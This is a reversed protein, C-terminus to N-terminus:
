PLLSLVNSPIPVINGWISMLSSLTEDAKEATETVQNVTDLAKNINNLSSNILDKDPKSSDMEEEVTEVRKILKKSDELGSNNLEQKFEQLLKLFEEKTMGQTTQIHSDRGSITSGTVNGTITINSHISYDNVTKKEQKSNDLQEKSKPIISSIDDILELINVMEGSKQCQAQTTKQKLKMLVKYQHFYPTISQQCETCKCPTLKDCKTELRPYSNNIKDLEHSVITLLEKKNQGSVRIHIQRDKYYEIIEAQTNDKELVVGNKWVSQYDHAIHQHMIVIFQSTIGKPMFDYQYRLLLNNDAQWTYVPPNQELLQPAIYHHPQNPIEYCLKFKQMLALLEGRMTNYQSDQWIHKLDNKNFRGFNKIVEANDLVKYVADTAWTPKLIITKYLPSEEDEQFHLCVGLDHLYGSLQLKDAEKEFGNSQCLEFYEKLDIYHRSDQELQQRVKVWTKPLPSGIHPLQTIFHKLSDIITNLGRNDSLNTALSDKINTFEAKLQNEQIECLCNQKENKIILLPSNDSLLEVLKFWYDLNPNDRRSDVVFLYLSRKTLFFQHTQHYIEQGGFDWINVQFNKDKYPFSYPLIAIGQTPISDPEPVLEYEPNIIKNALSTKGAGGEGVLILKAEYITDEGDKRLQEFYTRIAENGQKIIEPPPQELPNGALYMENGWEWEWKIPLHFDLLWESLIKIQNDQLDIQSLNKLKKLIRIDSIKNNSLDIHSLNNLEKLININSIKNSSLNLQFLNKLERLVSIDSIQNNSLDLQTLNKLEKLVSIDSIQSNSLNLQSLNKLQKLVSIDSLLNLGDFPIIDLNLGIIQQHDNLLYSNIVCDMIDIDDLCPKLEEGIIKEIEKLVELDSM